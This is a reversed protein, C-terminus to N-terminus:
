IGTLTNLTTGSVDPSGAKYGVLYHADSNSVYITYAGDAASVATPGEKLDAPLNNTVDASTRYANVSVGALPNGNVDKTIGTITKSSNIGSSKMWQEYESQRSLLMSVNDVGVNNNVGSFRTTPWYAPAAFRSYRYPFNPNMMRDDPDAWITSDVLATVVDPLLYSM